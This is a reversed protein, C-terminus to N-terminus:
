EEYRTEIRRRSLADLGYLLARRAVDGSPGGAEIQERLRAVFREETTTAVDLAPYDSLDVAPLLGSLDARFHFYSAGLESLFGLDLGPLMRGTLKLYVLDESGAGAENLHNHVRLKADDSHPSGTIDCQVAQVRRKDLVVHEVVTPGEGLELVLCGKNGTEDLGGASLSGSYAGMPQGDDWKLTQHGHYHGLATWFFRQERLEAESFPYTSKHAQLWGGDDRSGHFLLLPIRASPRQIPKSLRRNESPEDAAVGCGTITVDDRGPWRFTRFDEHAFIHVNPPWALGRARGRDGPNYVSAGGYPDHNGPALYVPKPAISGLRDMVFRLTDTSVSEDDFLDGPLLVGDLDREEVLAIARSFADRREQARQQATGESLGLKGGTLRAGFHIDSLQLVRLPLSM